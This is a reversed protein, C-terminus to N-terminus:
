VQDAAARDCSCDLCQRFTGAGCCGALLERLAKRARHLRVKANNATVGLAGAAEPLPQDDLDVRRLIEAHDPRLGGLLGLACACGVVQRPSAEAIEEALLEFRAAQSAQQVHHDALANRLLRYFWADLREGQRLSGLREAARLLAQQLLDEADAETRLRRRVFALYRGRQAALARLRPDLAADAAPRATQTM